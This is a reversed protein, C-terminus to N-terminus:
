EEDGYKCVVWKDTKMGRYSKCLNKCVFYGAKIASTAPCDTGVKLTPQKNAKLEAEKRTGQFGIM